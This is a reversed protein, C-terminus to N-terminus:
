RTIAAGALFGIHSKYRSNDWGRGLVLEKWVALSLLTALLDTAASPSLHASLAAEQEFREAVGRCNAALGEDATKDGLARMVPCIRPYIEALQAILISLAARASPADKIALPPREAELRALLATLLGARDSFHLYLAQRSLGGSQAVDAMTFDEGKQACFLAASLIKDATENINSV